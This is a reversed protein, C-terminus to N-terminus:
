RHPDWEVDLGTLLAGMRSEMAEPHTEPVFRIDPMREILVELAVKVEMRALPAGLCMHKWRGFAFHQSLDPRDIDFEEPNAFASEDRLASAFSLALVADKPIKVGGLETEATVDRRVNHIPSDFRLVEEVAKPIEAPEAILRDWRERPQLLNWLSLGILSSTTDVGASLVNGIISLVEFTTLAAEGEDTEAHVLQSAYDERPNERRSEIFDRLWNNFVVVEALMEEKREPSLPPALTLSSLNNDSWVAFDDAKELPAGVVTTVMRVTLLRTFEQIVNMRGKAFVGDVLEEALDRTVPEYEAIMKPTFARQSLKRLRTHEPPDTNILGYSMPHGDPLVEELRPLPQPEVVRKSSFTTTDKLVSLVDAHRTVCWVDYQPVYFVPAEKRAARLWPHPDLVQEPQLPDFPVGHVVPCRPSNADDTSGPADNTLSKTDSHL